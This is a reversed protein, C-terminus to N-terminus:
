QNDIGLEIGVAHLARRIRVIPADRGDVPLVCFTNCTDCEEVPYGDITRGTPAIVGDDCHPCSHVM